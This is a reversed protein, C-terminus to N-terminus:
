LGSSSSSGYCSNLLDLLNGLFLCSTTYFHLSNPSVIVSPQCRSPPVISMALECIFRDSQGIEEDTQDEARLKVRRIDRYFPPLRHVVLSAHVSTDDRFDNRRRTVTELRADARPDQIRYDFRDHGRSSDPKLDRGRREAM